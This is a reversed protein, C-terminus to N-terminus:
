LFSIPTKCVQMHPFLYSARSYKVHIPKLGLGNALKLLRPVSALLQTTGCTKLILRTAYVFLSSESLVYADFHDTSKMSVIKCMADDLLADLHYRSISRLSGNDHRAPFGEGACAGFSVELRKESGEFVDMTEAM